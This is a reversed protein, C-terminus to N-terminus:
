SDSLLSNLESILSFIARELSLSIVGNLDSSSSYLLILPRRDRTRVETSVVDCRYGDDLSRCPIIGEFNLGEM